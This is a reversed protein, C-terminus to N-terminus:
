EIYFAKKEKEKEFWVSDSTLALVKLAGISDQNTLTETKNDIEVFYSKEEGKEPSGMTGIFTITPWTIKKPIAKKKIPKNKKQKNNESDSIRKQNLAFPESYNMHYEFPEDKAGSDAMVTKLFSKQVRPTDTNQLDFFRYAVLSWILLVAAGLVGIQVKNKM